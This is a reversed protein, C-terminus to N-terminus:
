SKATYITFGNLIANVKGTSRQMQVQCLYPSLCFSRGFVFIFYDSIKNAEGTIDLTACIILISLAFDLTPVKIIRHWRHVYM